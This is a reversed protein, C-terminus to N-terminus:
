RPTLRYATTVHPLDLVDHGRTDPHTALVNRIEGLFEARRQETMAAAYSRTAFGAVIEDPTGRQLTVWEAVVLDADLEEAFADAVTRPRFREVDEAALVASLEAVWPARDDRLSWLLGVTGGPRLVRRMEVAAPGPDFWHAAQAATVVDVCADPLPVAEAPAVVTRVQPLRAVLQELMASSTDVAVVEHGAAVLLETLIGTGAGLDLMTRRGALGDLLFGVTESPYTPRLAAYEAAVTGFSRARERWAASRGSGGV